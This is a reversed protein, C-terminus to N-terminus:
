ISFNLIRLSVSDHRFDTLGQIHRCEVNIFHILLLYLFQEFPNLSLILNRQIVLGMGIQECCSLLM